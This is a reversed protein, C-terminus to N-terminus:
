TGLVFGKGGGGAQQPKEHCGKGTDVGTGALVGSSDEPAGPRSGSTKHTSRTIDLNQAVGQCAPDPCAYRGFRLDMLKLGEM